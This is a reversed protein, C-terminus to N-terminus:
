TACSCYTASGQEAPERAAEIRRLFELGIGLALERHDQLSFREFPEFGRLTLKLKEIAAPNFVQFVLRIEDGLRLRANEHQLWLRRILHRNRINECFLLNGDFPAASRSIVGCDVLSFWPGIHENRVIGNSLIHRKLPEGPLKRRLPANVGHLPALGARRPLGRSNRPMTHSDFYKAEFRRMSRM